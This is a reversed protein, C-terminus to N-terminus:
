STSRTGNQLTQRRLSPPAGVSGCLSRLHPVTLYCLSALRRFSFPSHFPTLLNGPYAEPVGVSLKSSWKGHLPFFDVYSHRKFVGPSRAGNGEPFYFNEEPPLVM